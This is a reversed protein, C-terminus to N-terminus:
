GKVLEAIRDVAEEAAARTEDSMAFGMELNSAPISVMVAIPPPDGLSTTLALLSAADGHHTMSSPAAATPDVREVTLAAVDVRADVFVVMSRGTLALALEPTPQSVSRVEVADFGLREIQDAVWRGAGDDSRLDNGFGIV